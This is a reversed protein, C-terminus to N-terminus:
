TIGKDREQVTTREPEIGLMQQVNTLVTQLERQENRATQYAEYQANKSATLRDKEEKLSKMSPLKEGGSIERLADRASEYLAIEARHAEYFAPSKKTKRYEAYVAKNGLYQGTLRIQRNVESLRAETAKLDTRATSTKAKADLLAQKVEEASAYPFAFNHQPQLLEQEASRLGFSPLNLLLHQM